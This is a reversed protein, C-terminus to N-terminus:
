SSNEVFDFTTKRLIKDFSLLFYDFFGERGLLFPVDGKAFCVPITIQIGIEAIIIDEEHVRGEVICAKKRSIGKLLRREGEKWKKGLRQLLSYPAMSFDAGSDVLFRYLNLGDVEKIFVSLTPRWIPEGEPRIFETWDKSFRM